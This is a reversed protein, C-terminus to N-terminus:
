GGPLRSGIAALGRAVLNRVAAETRRLQRAADAYNMGLIRVLGIAERQSEPLRALIAELQALEERAIACRSPTAAPDPRGIAIDADLSCEERRQDRCLRRHYRLRDVIKHSARRFLWGRFAEEGRYEFEPLDLLAERCISQVLDCASERGSLAGGGNIRVFAELRPLNRAFLSEFAKSDGGIAAAVTDRPDPAM